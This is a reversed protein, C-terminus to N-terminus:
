VAETRGTVCNSIAFLIRKQEFPEIGNELDITVMEQSDHHIDPDKAGSQAEKGITVVSEFEHSLSNIEDPDTDCSTCINM